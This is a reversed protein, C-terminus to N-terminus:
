SIIGGGIIRSNQYFVVSQGPTIARQARKFKVEVRDRSLLSVRARVPQHKYRIKAMVAVPLKPPRGVLWSLDEVILEKQYLDKKQGILVANKKQSIKVVYVPQSRFVGLGKRQGITYFAIGQHKGSIQGQLNLIQGPKSKQSCKKKLFQRYNNEPIFCIEQSEPRNAVLLKNKKAINKVDGKTLDGVPFLIYKLQKQTLRYLFYSQDRNKDKGKLLNIEKNRQLLRAYHGTALYNAGMARAKKLLLGFKIYENCRVCPNPTRGSFYERCFPKIIKEIFKQRLDVVCHPIGLKQCVRKAQRISKKSFLGIKMTLGIVQYGQKILLLAAVSSDVGGSMAVVVVKKNKRKMNRKTIM